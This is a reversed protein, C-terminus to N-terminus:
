ALFPKAVPMSSQGESSSLGIQVTAAPSAIYEARSFSFRFQFRADAPNVPSTAFYAYLRSRPSFSSPM